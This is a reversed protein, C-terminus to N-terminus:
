FSRRSRQVKPMYCLQQLYAQRPPVKRDPAHTRRRSKRGKIKKGADYGSPDLWSAKMRATIKGFGVIDAFLVTADEYHDAISEGNRLRIAIEPPLINRLLRSVASASADLSVASASADLGSSISICSVVPVLGWSPQTWTLLSQDSCMGQVALAAADVLM